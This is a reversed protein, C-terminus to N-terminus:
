FDESVEEITIKYNKGPKIVNQATQNSISM